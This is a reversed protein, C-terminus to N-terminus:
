PRRWRWRVVAAPQGAAASAQEFLTDYNTTVVEAVAGERGAFFEGPSVSVPTVSGCTNPWSNEARTTSTPRLTLRTGVLTAGVNRFFQTSATAVGLDRGQDSRLPLEAQRRTFAYQFRALTSRSAM